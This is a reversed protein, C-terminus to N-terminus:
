ITTQEGMMRSSSVAKRISWRQCIMTLTNGSVRMAGYNNKGTTITRRALRPIPLRPSSPSPDKTTPIASRPPLLRKKADNQRPQTFHNGTTRYANVFPCPVLFLPYLILFLTPSVFLLSNGRLRNLEVQRVREPTTANHPSAPLPTIARTTSEPEPM